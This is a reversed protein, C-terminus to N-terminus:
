IERISFFDAIRDFRMVPGDKCVFLPGFQCHGCLGIACKMNREMALYIHDSPLGVARLVSVTFRMMVEPGCLLAITEHPDFAMRSVLAPVVGVNGHWDPSAHDVTVEIDMDSRQRWQELERRYLIDNPTRAGYLIAVRGYRNRNALIQYIAPRLPALGLGGAVIVIDAGEVDTVPWGMGFPGRLGITTGPQLKAIAGSVAGLDRITHVFVVDDASGGSISIPVEGVGFVSLMNFQGPEFAPRSGSLSTLALTVTDSLERLVRSVRYLQPLFPDPCPMLGMDTASMDMVGM